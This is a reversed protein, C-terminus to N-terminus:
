PAQKESNNKIEKANAKWNERERKTRKRLQPQVM